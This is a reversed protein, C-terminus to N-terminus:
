EHNELEKALSEFRKYTYTFGKKNRVSFEDKELSVLTETWEDMPTKYHMKISDKERKVVFTEANSSRKFTSDLQPQLKVRFGEMDPYLEIYEAYNSFKYEKIDNFQPREVKEIKWYGNLNKIMEEDSIQQSNNCAMFLILLSLLGIPAFAKKM